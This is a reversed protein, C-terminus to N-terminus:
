LVGHCAGCGEFPLGLVHCCRCPVGLGEHLTEGLYTGVGLGQGGRQRRLVLGDLRHRVHRGGLPVAGVHRPEELGEHEGLVLAVERRELVLVPEEEVAVVLGEASAVRAGLAAEDGPRPGVVDPDVAPLDVVPHAVEHGGEVTAGELLERGRELEAEVVLLLVLLQEEHVDLVHQGAIGQLRHVGTARALHALGVVEPPDVDFAPQDLDAVRAVTEAEVVLQRSVPLPQLGVPDGVAQHGVALPQVEHGVTAVLSM